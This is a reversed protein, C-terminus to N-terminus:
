RELPICAATISIQVPLGLNSAGAGTSYKSKFTFGLGQGGAEVPLSLNGFDAGLSTLTVFGDGTKATAGNPFVDRAGYHSSREYDYDVLIHDTSIVFGAAPPATATVVIPLFGVILVDQSPLLIARTSVDDATGLVTACEFRLPANPVARVVYPAMLAEVFRRLKGEAPHEKPDHCASEIGLRRLVRTRFDPIM